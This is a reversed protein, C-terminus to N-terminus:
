PGLHLSTIVLCHNEEQPQEEPYLLSFCKREVMWCHKSWGGARELGSAAVPNSIVKWSIMLPTPSSKLLTAELCQLASLPLMREGQKGRWKRRLYLSFPNTWPHVNQSNKPHLSNYKSYIPLPVRSYLVPFKHSQAVKSYLLVQFM